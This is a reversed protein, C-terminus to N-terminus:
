LSSGDPGIKNRRVLSQSPRYVSSNPPVFLSASCIQEAHEASKVAECRRNEECCGQQHSLLSWAELDLPNDDRTVLEAVEQAAANDSIGCDARAFFAERIKERDGADKVKAHKKGADSRKTRVEPTTLKGKKGGKRSEQLVNQLQSIESLSLPLFKYERFPIVTGDGFECRFGAAYLGRSIKVPDHDADSGKGKPPRMGVLEVVRLDGNARRVYISRYPEKWDLFEFVEKEITVIKGSM